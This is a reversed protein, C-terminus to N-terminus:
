KAIEAFSRDIMIECEADPYKERVVNEIYKEIESDGITMDQPIVCDLRVNKDNISLDHVTIRGDLKKMESGIWERLSGLESDRSPIPDYHVIMRLGDNKLFDREITDIIEHMVLPDGDAPMEVHVSAFQRGPGYDHVMLDHAGIVGEYGLIKKKINEVTEMDPARGLVPDLTDRAALIGSVIVFVSVAVGIWGDLMVGWVKSIVAGLLVALSSIVDNRSDASTAMLTESNITKGIRRYFIMMWLKVLISCALIVFTLMSFSVETPNIIKGIGERLLEVGIVIIMIAVIIGALYEYRGHGYPHEDDAPRQSLKFGLFSMVCTSADSLNNVADAIVSVSGALIGALLKFAFLFTNCVIGTIGALLGYSGRVKADSADDYNKVFRKILFSTM